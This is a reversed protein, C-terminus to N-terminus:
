SRRCSILKALPGVKAFARAPCAGRWAAHLRSHYPPGRSSKAGSAGRRQPAKTQTRRTPVGVVSVLAGARRKLPPSAPRARLPNAAVVEM